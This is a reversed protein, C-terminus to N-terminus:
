NENVIYEKGQLGNDALLTEIADEYNYSKRYSDIVEGDLEMTIRYYTDDGGNWCRDVIFEIM